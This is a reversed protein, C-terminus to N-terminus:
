ALDEVNNSEMVDLLIKRILRWLVVSNCLDIKKVTMVLKMTKRVPRPAM